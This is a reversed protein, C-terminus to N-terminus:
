DPTFEGAIITCLQIRNQGFHARQIRLVQSFLLANKFLYSGKYFLKFTNTSFNLAKQPFWSMEPHAGTKPQTRLRTRMTPACPQFGKNEQIKGSKLHASRVWFNISHSFLNQAKARRMPPLRRFYRKKIGYRQLFGGRSIQGSVHEFM